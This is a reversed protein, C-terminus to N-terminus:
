WPFPLVTWPNLEIGRQTVKDIDIIEIPMQLIIVWSDLSEMQVERRLNLYLELKGGPIM